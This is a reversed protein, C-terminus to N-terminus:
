AIEWERPANLLMETGQSGTFIDQVNTSVNSRLFERVVANRVPTM